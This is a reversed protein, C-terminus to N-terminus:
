RWSALQEWEGPAFWADVRDGLWSGDEPKVYKDVLNANWFHLCFSPRFTRTLPIKMDRKYVAYMESNQVAYIETVSEWYGSLGNHTIADTLLEQGTDVKFNRTAIVEETQLLCQAMAQHGPPLLIIGTDIMNDRWGFFYPSDTPLEKVQLTFTDIWYGGNDYLLKYRFYDIFAGAYDNLVSEDATGSAIQVYKTMHAAILPAISSADKITVGLLSDTNISQNFTYLDITHGQAVFSRLCLIELPSLRRGNFFTQMLM